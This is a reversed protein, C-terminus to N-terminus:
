IDSLCVVSNEVDQFVPSYEYRDASWDNEWRIQDILYRFHYDRGRELKLKIQFAGEKIKKMQIPNELDWQNFDGMLYVEKAGEVAEKPLQFTVVCLNNKTNSNQKIM